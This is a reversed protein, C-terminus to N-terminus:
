SDRPSPSTYLLCAFVDPEVDFNGKAVQLALPDLNTIAHGEEAIDNLVENTFQHDHMMYGSQTEDAKGKVTRTIVGGANLTWGLGAWSSIEQVRHGGAHYSLSIPVSLNKGQLSTLPVSISPIGTEKSVPILGYEGLASADPSPPIITSIPSGEFVGSDQGNIYVGLMLFLFLVFGKKM